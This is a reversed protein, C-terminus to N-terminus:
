KDKQRKVNIEEDSGTDLHEFAHDYSRKLKKLEINGLARLVYKIPTVITCNDPFIGIAIGVCKLRNGNGKVTFVGAGSDGLSFFHQKITSQIHYQGKMICKRRDHDCVIGNAREECCCLSLDEGHTCRMHLNGFVVAGKTLGTSAGHKIV